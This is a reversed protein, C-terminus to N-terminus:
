AQAWGDFIVDMLADSNVFGDKGDKTACRMIAKLRPIDVAQALVQDLDPEKGTLARQLDLLADVRKRFQVIRERPRGEKVDKPDTLYVVKVMGEASLWFNGDPRQIADGPKFRPAPRRSYNYATFAPEGEFFVMILLSGPKPRELLEVAPAFEPIERATPALKLALARPIVTAQPGIHALRGKGDSIVGVLEEVRKGADAERQLDAQVASLNHRIFASVRAERAQPTM